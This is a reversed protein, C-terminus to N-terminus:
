VSDGTGLSALHGPDDLHFVFDEGAQYGAIGNADVILFTQGALSSSGSDPTFLVAHHAGLQAATIDGALDTDFNEASLAGSQVSGDIGNVTGQLNFKDLSFDFGHLTDFHSGTSQSASTYVFTDAGAGGTLVDVGSGAYLIFNGNTEHSGDFVFTDNAGLLSADVTLTQGAAVTADNTTLSYSHGGGLVIREVNTMTSAGFVLPTSAYDGSLYVKDSGAGGYIHDASTLYAGLSITDNGDGATVTDNGAGPRFYDNGLGGTLADDGSGGSITDAGAGGAVVFRGNTEHSGDFVFTDNSGLLSADV